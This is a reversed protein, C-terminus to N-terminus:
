GVLFQALQFGLGGQEAGREEGGPGVTEVVFAEIGIPLVVREVGADPVVAKVPEFLWNM